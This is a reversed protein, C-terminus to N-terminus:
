GASRGALSAIAATLASPDVPKSVHVQFGAALARRHDYKGVFATLAVAPLAKADYGSRRVQRILDFGDQVPMGLDSVLVDVGGAGSSLSDMAEAASGVAVVLAGAGELLRVLIYRTDAEDEVLLV